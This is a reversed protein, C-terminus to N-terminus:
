GLRKVQGPLEQSVLDGGAVGPVSFSFILGHGPALLRAATQENASVKGCLSSLCFNEESM